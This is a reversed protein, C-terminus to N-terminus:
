LFCLYTDLDFDVKHKEINSSTISCEIKGIKHDIIHKM